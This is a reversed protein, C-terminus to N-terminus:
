QESNKKMARYTKVDMGAADAEEQEKQRSAATLGQRIAIASNMMEIRENLRRIFVDYMVASAGGTLGDVVALADIAEALTRYAADVEERVAKLALTTRGAGEDARKELLEEVIRNLRELEAVWTLLGINKVDHSHKGNLETVLNYVASTEEIHSKLAVNGYTDLVIAIRNAAAAAEPLFHDQISRVANVMGRFVTDRAIDAADIDATLASKMIKKFAEDERGHAAVLAAFPTEVRLAEAGTEKVLTIVFQMLQFHEDNRLAVLHTNKIKM